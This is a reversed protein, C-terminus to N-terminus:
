CVLEPREHQLMVATLDDVLPLAVESRFDKLLRGLRDGGDKAAGQFLRAVDTDDFMVGDPREAESMADSYVFLVSGPKFDTSRNVYESTKRLGLPVGTTDLFRAQGGAQLLPQPAGAASWDLRCAAPDVIGYFMTAYHGRPLMPMLATNLRELLGAPNDRLEPHDEILAHLRFSNLAAKIGHGSFDFAFVGLRDGGVEFCGWVDGGVAESPELVGEVRLGLRDRVSATLAPDPQLALQMQRAEELEESLRAQERALRLLLEQRELQTIMRTRAYRISRLLERGVLLDKTLYDQAGAELAAEAAEPDDLGTLVVVPTTPAATIIGAVTALGQSDPLSLDLLVVDYDTDALAHRADELTEVHTVTMRPRQCAALEMRAM